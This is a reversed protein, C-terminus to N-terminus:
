VNLPNLYKKLEKWDGSGLAKKALKVLITTKAVSSPEKIDQIKELFFACKNATEDNAKKLSQIITQTESM